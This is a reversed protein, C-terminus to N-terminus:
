RTVRFENNLYAVGAIEGQKGAAGVYRVRVELKKITSSGPLDTITIQRAYGNRILTPDSFDDATGYDGDPGASILDDDTGNVGDPGPDLSVPRFGNSFGAFSNDVNTNDVSGVNEIQKFDLQRSNRLSEIEEISSVIILKANSVNKSIAGIELAFTLAAATAVLAVTLIFIAVIVEIMSVGAEGSRPAPINDNLIPM